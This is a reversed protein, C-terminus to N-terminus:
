TDVTWKSVTTRNWARGDGSAYLTTNNVHPFHNSAGRAFGLTKRVELLVKNEDSCVDSCV